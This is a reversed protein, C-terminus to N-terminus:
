LSMMQLIKTSSTWERKWSIKPSIKEKIAMSMSWVWSLRKVQCIILSWIRVYLLVVRAKVKPDASQSAMNFIENANYSGVEKQIRDLCYNICEKQCAMDIICVTENLSKTYERFKKVPRKGEFPLDDMYDEEEDPVVPTMPVLTRPEKDVISVQTVGPTPDDPTKITELVKDLIVKALESVVLGKAQIEANDGWNCQGDCVFCDGHRAFILDKRHQLLFGEDFGPDPRGLIQFKGKVYVLLDKYNLFGACEDALDQMVEVICSDWWECEISVKAENLRQIRQEKLFQKFTGIRKSKEMTEYTKTYLTNIPIVFPSFWTGEQHFHYSLISFPTCSWINKEIYVQVSVPCTHNAKLIEGFPHPQDDGKGQHFICKQQRYHPKPTTQEGRPAM